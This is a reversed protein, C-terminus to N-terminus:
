IVYYARFTNFYTIAIYKHSNEYICNICAHLYAFIHSRILKIYAYMYTYTSIFAPKCLIFWLFQEYSGLCMAYRNLYM